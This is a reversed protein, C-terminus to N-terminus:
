LLWRAFHSADAWIGCWEVHRILPFPMGPHGDPEFPAFDEWM